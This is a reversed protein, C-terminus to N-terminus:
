RRLKKANRKLKKASRTIGKTKQDYPKIKTLRKINPNGNGFKELQNLMRVLNKAKDLPIPVFHEMDNELLQRYGKIEEIGYESPYFLTERKRVEGELWSRIIMYRDVRTILETKPCKQYLLLKYPCDQPYENM